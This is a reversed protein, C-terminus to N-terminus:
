FYGLVGGLPFIFVGIFRMVLLGDIPECCTVIIDYINLGWGVALVGLIAVWGLILIEPFKV